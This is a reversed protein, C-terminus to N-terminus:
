TGAGTNQLCCLFGALIGDTNVQILIVVLRAVDKGRHYLSNVVGAVQGDLRNHLAIELTSGGLVQGKCVATDAQGIEGNHSLSKAVLERLIDYLLAVLKSLLDDGTLDYYLVIFTEARICLIQFM